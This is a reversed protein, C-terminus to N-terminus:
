IDTDILNYRSSIPVCWPLITTYLIGGPAFAGIPPHNPNDPNIKSLHRKVWSIYLLRLKKNQSHCYCRRGSHSKPRYKKKISQEKLAKAGLVGQDNQSRLERLQSEKKRVREVVEGRLSSIDGGKTKGYCDMWDHPSIVLTNKEGELALLGRAFTKGRRGTPHIKPLEPILGRAIRKHMVETSDDSQFERWTSINPYDEIRDVLHAKQPNTYIYVIKELVDEPTSMHPADYSEEWLKRSHRGLLRNVAHTSERKIYGIFKPIGVADEAILLGHYHNSLIIQHCITVNFQAQARAIIGNLILQMYEAAVLPLGEQMRTTVFYVAGPTFIKRVRDLKRYKKDAFKSGRNGVRAKEKKVRRLVTTKKM